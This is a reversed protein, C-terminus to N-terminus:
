EHTRAYLVPLDPAMPGTVRPGRLSAMLAKVPHAFSDAVATGEYGCHAM